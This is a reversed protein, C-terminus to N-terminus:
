ELAALAEVRELVLQGIRTLIRGRELATKRGWEGALAVEAATVAADIDAAGGRAIQCLASGDSPNVLPLTKGGAAPQWRGGILCLSPDFWTPNANTM